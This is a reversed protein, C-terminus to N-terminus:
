LLEIACCPFDKKSLCVKAMCGLKPRVRREANRRDGGTREEERKSVCGSRKLRGCDCRVAGRVGNDRRREGPWFVDFGKELLTKQNESDTARQAFQTVSAESTASRARLVYFKFHGWKRWVTKRAGILREREFFGSNINETGKEDDIASFDIFM